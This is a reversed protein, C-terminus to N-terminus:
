VADGAVLDAGLAKEGAPEGGEVHHAQRVGGHPLGPLPDPRRHLVAPGLEGDAADGYVQGRRPLLLRPGEVVQGDEHAEQRCVAVQRLGRRVRRKHPLQGQGPGQPAHRPNEGHGQRRLPRPHPLEEDRRAVGGLRRKGPPQRDVAHLIHRGQRGVEPSFLGEGGGRGPRRSLVLRAKQVEPVHHALLVHLPGQFDGGGPPVVKQHDARGPRPFGHQCFAQGGDQRVHAPLLGQRGGAHPGHRPQRVRRVGQQGATGEAAGMVGDGGGGEGAAPGGHPGPFDGQGVVPDEEQVLQRLEAPVGQLNEALGQLVPLDGDGPGPAGQAEGGPELEDAGHVGAAAAPPPVRVPPAGAGLPVPLPIHLLDGAGQQVPDVEM